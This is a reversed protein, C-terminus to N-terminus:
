SSAGPAPRDLWACIKEPTLPLDTLDAGLAHNVANAIAAGVPVAAIEGVSKAGYPGTREGKEILLTEIRPLEPARVGQIAPGSPVARQPVAKEMKLAGALDRLSPAGDELTEEGPVTDDIKVKIEEIKKIVTLTVTAFLFLLGLHFATSLAFWRATRGPHPAWPDFREPPPTAKAM